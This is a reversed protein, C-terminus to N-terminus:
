TPSQCPSCLFGNLTLSALLTHEYLQKRVHSYNTVQTYHLASLILIVCLLVNLLITLVCVLLATDFQGDLTQCSLSCAWKM